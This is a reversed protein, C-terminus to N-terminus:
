VCGRYEDEEEESVVPDLLQRAIVETSGSHTNLEPEALAKSIDARSVTKGNIKQPSSTPHSGMWRRVGEM